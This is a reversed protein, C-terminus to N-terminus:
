PEDSETLLGAAQVRLDSAQILLRARVQRIRRREAAPDVDHGDLFRPVDLDIPAPPPPQMHMDHDDNDRHSDPELDALDVKAAGNSAAAAGSDSPPTACDTGHGAPLAFRKNLLEYTVERTNKMAYLVSHVIRPDSDQPLDVRQILDTSTLPGEEGLIKRIQGRVDARLKSRKRVM